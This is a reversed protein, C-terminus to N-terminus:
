KCGDQRKEQQEEESYLDSDSAEFDEDFSDARQLRRKGDKKSSESRKKDGAKTKRDKSASDEKM